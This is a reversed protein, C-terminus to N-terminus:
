STATWRIVAAGTWSGVLWAADEITAAPREEGKTLQFTHETKPEAATGTIAFAVLLIAALIRNM